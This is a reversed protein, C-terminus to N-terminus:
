GNNIYAEVRVFEDLSIGNVETMGANRMARILDLRMTEDNCTVSRINEKRIGNRFMIENSTNYKQKMAKIFDLASLRSFMAKDSSEGFADRAHAYWDTRAMEHKDIILRFRGGKYCDDFRRKGPSKVGIRCFVNDSGGSAFDASMSAGDGVFGMQCRGRSSAMGSSKLIGVVADASNVGSWIYQLGAKEYEALAIEDIYTSYGDFVNQLKMDTIRDPGIGIDALMQNLEQETGKSIKPGLSPNHQWLVKRKKLIKEAAATPKTSLNDLELQKMIKKINIADAMGDTGVPIRLRFYGNMGRYSKGCYVECTAKGARYEMKDLSMSGINIRDHRSFLKKTPDSKEWELVGYDPAGGSMEKIKDELQAWRQRTLKGQIEYTSQGSINMKRATLNMGEVADADSWVSIGIRNEPIVSLDSFVRDASVVVNPKTVPKAAVPVASKAQRAAALQEKVQSSVDAAKVPDSIAQVLQQKKMSGYYPIEKQKAIQLLEAKNMQNLVDQNQIIGSLPQEMVTPSEDAFVFKQKNGSRITLLDSYFERYTERLMQKRTVIDDLLSEAAVGKGKLAEAYDQFIARYKVDSIAEIRKIYALSDQLNIDIKGDAFQRFITNYIPETEGYAGNPHYGYSMKHSDIDNIYRLAQEKDVGIVRGAKDKVFNGGHADFNGILWDTVHERQLQPLIDAPLEAKGHQWQKLDMAMGDIKEQFAGFKGDLRGTAVRVATEPDVIGQVKYAAEQAYARFAEEKSSHKQVAPKFLWDNGAEDTCAHIEGTGGLGAKGHDIMGNTLINQPVTATPVDPPEAPDPKGNWTDLKEEKVQVFKPAATEIYEVACRCRPHAPPTQSAGPFLEKVGLEYSEEFGIVKGDLSSCRACTRADYATSWKKVVTGMLGQQQAQRIGEHAGKNYAYALETTAINYARYRHQRAAYKAAAESAKQEVDVANMEPNKEGLSSKVHEYYKANSEVQQQTLGICPRLLRSTKEADWGETYAKAMISRVARRQDEGLNTVWSAGHKQFWARVDNDTDSFVFTDYKGELEAVAAKMTAEWIPKLKENVFVSYDEQWQQIEKEYGNLFATELEKYTIASQQDNWFNNLWYILEPEAANLFANLKDLVLPTKKKRIAKKAQKFVFM